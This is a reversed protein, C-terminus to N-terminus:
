TDRSFDDLKSAQTFGTDDGEGKKDASNEGSRVPPAPLDVDGDLEEAADAIRGALTSGIGRVSRLTDELQTRDADDLVTKLQEPLTNSADTAPLKSFYSSLSGIRGRGLQDVHEALYLDEAPVGHRMQAILTEYWQPERVNSNVRALERTGDLLDAMNRGASPVGTMDADLDDELDDLSDGKCWHWCLVAATKSAEDTSLNADYLRSEFGAGDPTSRLAVRDFERALTSVLQLPDDINRSLERNVSTIADLPTDLWTSYNFEIAAEGLDTTEFERRTRLETILRKRELWDVTERLKSEIGFSAGAHHRGWAGESDYQEWFLTNQLFSEIEDPTQWGFDILELLLQRFERDNEIHTTVDELDKQKAAMGFQFYDYARDDKYLPFAYGEEYGYGPRGARGIWQVYEYVGIWDGYRKLDAIIVSQIPADFGYALGPTASVCMLDGEQVADVIVDRVSADLGSHHFAVGKEMLDALKEYKATMEAPLASEIDAHFDRDNADEFLGTDAIDEARSESWDRRNNFVLFPAKEDYRDIIRAIQEGRTQGSEEEIPREVVPVSRDYNSEILEANLWNSLEQHNGVTASMAFVDIDHDLCATMAKEIGPGRHYSYIEHFDDFIVRDISRIDGVNRMVSQFFSEFTMVPVDVHRISGSGVGIEYGDAWEEIEERKAQTLQYSPVLYAARGGEDLAKKLVSEAVMTKGNGTEAILLTNENDLVGEDLAQSQTGTLDDYGHADMIEEVIHVDEEPLSDPIAPMTTAPRYAGAGM